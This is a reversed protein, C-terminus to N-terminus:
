RGLDRLRRARKRRDAAAAHRREADHGWTGSLEAPDQWIAENVNGGYTRSRRGPETTLGRAELSGTETEHDRATSYGRELDPIGDDVVQRGDPRTRYRISGGDTLYVTMEAVPERLAARGDRTLVYRGWWCLEVLRRQTLADMVGMVRPDPRVVTARRVSRLLRLQAITLGLMEAQRDDDSDRAGRGPSM